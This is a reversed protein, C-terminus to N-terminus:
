MTLATDYQMRPELCDPHEELLKVIRNAIEDCFSDALKASVYGEDSFPKIYIFDGDTIAFEAVDEINRTIYEYLLPGNAESLSFLISVYYDTKSGPELAATVCIGRTKPEQYMECRKDTFTRIVAM